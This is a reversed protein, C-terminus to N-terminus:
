PKKYTVISDINSTFAHFKTSLAKYSKIAIPHLTCSQPQKRLAIPLDIDSLKDPIFASQEPDSPVALPNSEQPAEPTLTETNIPKPRRSYM